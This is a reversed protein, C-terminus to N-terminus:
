TLTTSFKRLIPMGRALTSSVVAAVWASPVILAEEIWGGEIGPFSTNNVCKVAEVQSDCQEWHVRPTALTLYDCQM